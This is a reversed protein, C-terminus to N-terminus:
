KQNQPESNKFHRTPFHTEKDTEQDNAVYSYVLTTRPGIQSDDMITVNPYLVVADRLVVNKGVYTNAGIKVGKGIQASSEVVASPHIDVDIVPIGPDFLELIKAMAIDADKVKIVARNAGPEVDLNASVIAATAGSQEWHSIYKKHGIFTIQGAKARDIHEPSDIATSSSGILEGELITCLEEVGYSKSIMKDSMNTTLHLVRDLM